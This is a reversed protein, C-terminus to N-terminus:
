CRQRVVVRHGVGDEQAIRGVQRGGFPCVVEDGGDGAVVQEGNDEDELVRVGFLHDCGTLGGGGGSPFGLDGGGSSIKGATDVDQASAAVPRVARSVARWSGVRRSSIRRRIM